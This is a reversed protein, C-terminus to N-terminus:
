GATATWHADDNNNTGASLVAGEPVGSITISLSESGDTDSLSSAIDLAIATDEDGTVNSVALNPDEATQDASPVGVDVNLSVSATDGDNETSTATVSLQFDDIGAAVTMTLGALQGPTLTWTGDGNQTGASLQAGEPLDGVTISLTESGDTDTLSSSIDLPYEALTEGGQVTEFSISNILFDDDNGPASFVIQDFMSGGDATFTVPPDIADTIGTILGEGVKVGDLYLEYTAQEGPHMWAFSVDASSAPQDFSVIMEESVGHANDFGLESNAGSSAGSVGFGVPNTNFSISDTSAEALTGDPNISRGSVSFGNGSGTVNSSNITTEVVTGGTTTM